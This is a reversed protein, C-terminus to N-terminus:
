NSFISTNFFASYYISRRNLPLPSLWYYTFFRKIQIRSKMVITNNINQYNQLPFHAFNFLLALLQTNVPISTRQDVSWIYIEAIDWPLDFAVTLVEFYQIPQPQNNPEIHDSDIAALSKYTQYKFL